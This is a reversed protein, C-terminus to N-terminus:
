LASFLEKYNKICNEISFKEFAFRTNSKHISYHGEDEIFRLM